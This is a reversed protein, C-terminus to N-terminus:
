YYLFLTFLVGEKFVECLCTFFINQTLKTKIFSFDCKMLKESLREKCLDETFFLRVNREKGNYGVTTLIQERDLNDWILKFLTAFRKSSETKALFRHALNCFLVGLSIVFMSRFVSSLVSSQLNHLYTLHLVRHTLFSCQLFFLIKCFLFGAVKKLLIVHISTEKFFLM